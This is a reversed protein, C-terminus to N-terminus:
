ADPIDAVRALVIFFQVAGNRGPQVDLFVDIAIVLIEVVHVGENLHRGIIRGRQLLADRRHLRQAHGDVHHCLATVKAMFLPKEGAQGQEGEIGLQLALCAAIGQGGPHGGGEGKGGVLKAVLAADKQALVPVVVRRDHQVKKVAELVAVAIEAPQAAAPGSLGKACLDDEASKPLLAFTGSEEKRMEYVKGDSAPVFCIIKSSAEADEVSTFVGKYGLPQEGKSQATVKPKIQCVPNKDKAKKLEATFDKSTEIAKKFEGIKKKKAEASSVYKRTKGYIIEWSVRNADELEPFDEAKAARLEDFTQEQDTIEEEAAGHVFVPAKAYISAQVAEEQVGLAAALPNQPETPASTPILAAAATTEQATPSTEEIAAVALEPVPTEVPASLLASDGFPNPAAPESGLNVSEEPPDTELSKIASSVASSVLSIAHWELMDLATEVKRPAVVEATPMADEFPNKQENM